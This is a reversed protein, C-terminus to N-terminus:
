LERSVQVTETVESTGTLAQEALKRVEELWGREAVLHAGLAMTYLESTVSDSGCHPKSRLEDLDRKCTRVADDISDLLVGAPLQEAFRLRNFLQDRAVPSERHVGTLWRQFSSEGLSTIRFM